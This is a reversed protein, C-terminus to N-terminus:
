ADARLSSPVIESSPLPPPTLSDGGNRGMAGDDKEQSEWEDEFARVILLLHRAHELKPDDEVDGDDRISYAASQLADAAERRFLDAMFGADLELAACVMGADLPLKTSM